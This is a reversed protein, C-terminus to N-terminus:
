VSVMTSLERRLTAQLVRQFDQTSCWEKKLHTVHGVRRGTVHSVRRGTVHSVRRGTVHGVRRGTVHGVRRGTM